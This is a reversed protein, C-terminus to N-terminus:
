REQVLKHGLELKLRNVWLCSGRLDILLESLITVSVVSHTTTDVFLTAELSLVLSLVM